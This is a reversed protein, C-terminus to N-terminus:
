DGTNEPWTTMRGDGNPELYPLKLYVESHTQYWLSRWPAAAESLDKVAQYHMKLMVRRAITEMLSQGDPLRASINTRNIAIIVEKLRNVLKEMETYLNEPLERPEDEEQHGPM